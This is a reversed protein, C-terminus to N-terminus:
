GSVLDGAKLHLVKRSCGELIRRVLLMQRGVDVSALVGHARLKQRLAQAGLPLCEAGAMKQAVQYSAAPELFVASGALWGIRMGHAVWARRRAQQRWGWREPSEPVGGRREAVHAHGDLLAAQLLRLFSLAPDSGQHYCSQIAAVEGLAQRSRRELEAQKACSIAGIEHAFQLWIEWGSHLEALIGPLRAHPPHAGASLICGRLQCSRMRLREQLQEYDRAFWALYAGLAATFRGGEAVAQCRSLAARDVEGPRVEVILMRARISEGRPVEEGTAMVLARPLRPVQLHGDGRMRSRAQHNGVARFLREALRQLASDGSGGIPVFDDVVLLGDKASSALSELANGTSAFNAPLHSAEMAAGFHQQCLAALATKFTGTPGTLFLSFDVRGLPARYVAALLPFSIRDPALDLCRLSARVARVQEQRDAPSSVQYHQLTAPLEVRLDSRPGQAGVAGGAHLYVWHGDHKRWGLHTFIREQQISGSLCQIAARTHQQQGPYIIAQPGLQRLAWGMRGFEAAPVVFAFRRGGLEAEMGFERRQGADDDLILDRVIRASFNAVATVRGCGNELQERRVMGIGRREYM